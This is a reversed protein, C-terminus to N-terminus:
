PSLHQMFNLAVREAQLLAAAPGIISAVTDGPRVASGDIILESFKVSPEVTRFTLAAVPLGAIVGPAKVVIDAGGCMEAPILARTTVDNGAADEALARQVLADIEASFRM